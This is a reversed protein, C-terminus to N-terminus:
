ATLPTYLEFKEFWSSISLTISIASSNKSFSPRRGLIITAFIPCSPWSRPELTTADEKASKPNSSIPLADHLSLTYIHPPPPPHSIFSLPPRHSFSSTYLFTYPLDHP